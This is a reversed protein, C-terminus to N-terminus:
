IVTRLALEKCASILPPTLKQFIIVSRQSDNVVGEPLAERRGEGGRPRLVYYITKLGDHALGYREGVRM